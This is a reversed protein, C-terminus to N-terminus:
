AASLTLSDAHLIIAGGTGGVSQSFTESTIRPTNEFSDGELVISPATITIDGGKGVGSTSTTVLGGNRVELGETLAIDIGRGNQAGLTEAKVSTGLGEVVLRGSRIVVQGGGEGSVDVLAANNMEIRGQVGISSAGLAATVPDIAVEGKAKASVLNVLGNPAVLHGREISIDGGVLTLAKGQQMQVAGQVTVSGPAGDLFGFAVVPATSLMSDDADLAAVFRAGDALRLYNATSAAFAGTVDVAANPGFLIGAPNILFFNAGTISSRITGDISSSSGGTVRTLINQINAPGSFTAVDGADLNFQAFSHFLNNGVTRGLGATIDYNPGLLPGSPGLKGDLVVSSAGSASIGVALVAVVIVLQWGRKNIETRHGPPIRPILRSATRLLALMM